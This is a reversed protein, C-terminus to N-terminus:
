TVHRAPTSRTRRQAIRTFILTVLRSCDLEALGPSHAAIASLRGGLLNNPSSVLCFYYYFNTMNWIATFPASRLINEARAQRPPIVVCCSHHKPTRNDSISVFM